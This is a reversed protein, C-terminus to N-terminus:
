KEPGDGAEPMLLAVPLWICVPDADGPDAFAADLIVPLPDTEADELEEEPGDPDTEVM